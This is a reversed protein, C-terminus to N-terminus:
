AVGEERLREIEDELQRIVELSTKDQSHQRANALMTNISAEITALLDSIDKNEM